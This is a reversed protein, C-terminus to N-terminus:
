LPWLVVDNSTPDGVYVSQSPERILMSFGGCVSTSPMNYVIAVRRKELPRFVDSFFAWLDGTSPEALRRLALAMAMTSTADQLLFEGSPDRALVSGTEFSSEADALNEVELWVVLHSTLHAMRLMMFPPFHGKEAPTRLLHSYKSGDAVEYGV